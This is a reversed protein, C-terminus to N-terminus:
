RVGAAVKFKYLIPNASEPISESKMIRHVVSDITIQDDPSLDTLGGTRFDKAKMWLIAMNQKPEEDSKMRKEVFADMGLTTDNFADGGVDADTSPDYTGDVIRRYTVSEIQASFNTFMREATAEWQEQTQGM